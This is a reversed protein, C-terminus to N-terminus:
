WFENQLIALFFFFFVAEYSLINSLLKLNLSSVKTDQTGKFNGKLLTQECALSQLQTWLSFALVTSCTRIM